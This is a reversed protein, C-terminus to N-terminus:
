AYALVRRSREAHPAVRSRGYAITAALIGVVLPVIAGAAPGTAVTTVVAGIMIIVLGAAALPTLFTKIHTAGPLILGLAGLTECVGIFHLFSAPFIVPGNAALQEVPIVLKMVGAMLFVAAVLSQIIWLTINTKRSPRSAITTMTPSRLLPEVSVDFSWDCFRCETEGLNIARHCTQSSVSFFRTM